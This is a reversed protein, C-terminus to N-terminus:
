SSELEECRFVSIQAYRDLHRCRLRPRHPPERSIVTLHQQEQLTRNLQKQGSLIRSGSYWSLSPREAGDLLVAQPQVHRRLLSAVAPASWSENLEWLWHPSSLLLLLALWLSGTLGIAGHLRRQPSRQQLAWGGWCLGCGVAGAMLSIARSIPLGSLPALAAGTLLGIGLWRWIAWPWRTRPQQQVAGALVPGCCLCFGPWLLLSYWPLQTQLPLVLAATIGTIGLCWRGWRHHRQRWAQLVGIPWLLLWPGGGELLEILPPIPGSSHGELAQHLRAVGQGSWMHWADAGRVWGHSLHWVLGPMLGVLLLALLRRWEARNLERDLARLLLSGALIPAAVPAKLLLLASGALGAGLGGLRISRKTDRAELLAWWLGTIAVLQCGDLMALRGHRALPMLTLAIAGTAIASAPDAPRLRLQLLALLPVLATSILAPILRVVWEPPLATLPQEAIVRWLSIASAILWHLGPPKNLYDNWWYTPWLKDPWPALSTELAVRAVIGEDFDRLPLNGLGALSLVLAGLWLLGILLISTRALQPTSRAM